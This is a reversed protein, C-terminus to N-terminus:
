PPPPAAPVLGCEPCRGPTARLDYGCSPCLNLSVDKRRPWFRYSTYASALALFWFPLGVAFYWDRATPRWAIVQFGLVGIPRHSIAPWSGYDVYPSTRIIRIQWVEDEGDGWDHAYIGVLPHSVDHYTRWGAACGISHPHILNSIVWAGVVAVCLLLSLASLIAFLRRKVPRWEVWGHADTHIRPEM